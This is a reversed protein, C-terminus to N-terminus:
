FNIFGLDKLSIDFQIKLNNEISLLGNVLYQGYKEGLQWSELGWIVDSDISYNTLDIYGYLSDRSYDFVYTISVDARKENNRLKLSITEHKNNIDNPLVVFICLMDERVEIAVHDHSYKFSTNKYYLQEDPARNSLYEYLVNYGPTSFKDESKCSFGCFLGIFSIILIVIRKM